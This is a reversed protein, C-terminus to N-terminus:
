TVHVYDPLAHENTADLEVERKEKITYISTCNGAFIFLRLTALIAYYTYRSVIPQITRPKFGPPPSVKRVVRGSRGRPGYLRRDLPYRTKEPPSAAPVHRGIAEM